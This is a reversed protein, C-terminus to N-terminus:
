VLNLVTRTAVDGGARLSYLNKIFYLLLMCVFLFTVFYYDRSSVPSIIVRAHPERRSSLAPVEALKYKKVRAGSARRVCMIREYITQLVRRAASQRKQRRAANHKTNKSKYVFAFGSFHIRAAGNTTGALVSGRFLITHTRTRTELAQCTIARTSIIIYFIFYGGVCVCSINLHFTRATAFRIFCLFFNVFSVFVLFICLIFLHFVSVCVCILYLIVFLM